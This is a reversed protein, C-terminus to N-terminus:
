GRKKADIYKSEEVMRERSYGRSKWFDLYHQPIGKLPDAGNTQPAQGRSGGVGSETHPLSADRSVERARQQTQIRDISGYTARLAARQVRLDTVPLGMDDSLRYAEDAVKQFEPSSQDRLSPLKQIYADVESKATQLKQALQQTQVAQLTIQTAYTQAHQRSLIDAAQMPTIRGQDVLAQLQTPDVQVPQQQPRQQQQAAREAAREARERELERQFEKMQGYVQQFRAGEPSLPHPEPKEPEPEVAAAPEVPEDVVPEVPEDAM